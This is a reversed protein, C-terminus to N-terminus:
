QFVEPEPLGTSTRLYVSFSLPLGPLSHYIISFKFRKLCSDNDYGIYCFGYDGATGVSRSESYAGGKLLYFLIFAYQIILLHNPM